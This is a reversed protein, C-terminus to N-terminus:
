YRWQWNLAPQLRSFVRPEPGPQGLGSTLHKIAALWLLHRLLSKAGQEKKEPLRGHFSEGM